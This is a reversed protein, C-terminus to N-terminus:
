HAGAPPSPGATLVTTRLCSVDSGSRSNISTELSCQLRNPAAGARHGERWAQVRSTGTDIRLPSVRAAEAEGARSCGRQVGGDM